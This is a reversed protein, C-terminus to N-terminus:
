LPYFRFMLCGESMTTKVTAPPINYVAASVQLDKISLFSFEAGVSFCKGFFYEGGLVGSIITRTGYDNVLYPTSPWTSPYYVNDSSYKNTAYRGGVIFRAHGVPYLGMVGYSIVSSKQIPNLTIAGSSGTARVESTSKYLGYQFELRAYKIPDINAVIRFPPVSSSLLDSLSLGGARIGLGFYRHKMTLSDKSNSRPRKPSDKFTEVTGNTYKVKAISTKAASITPGALNACRKYKIDYADTEIIKAKVTSGSKFVISDGCEANAESQINSVAAKSVSLTLALVLVFLNLPSNKM